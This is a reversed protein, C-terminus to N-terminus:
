FRLHRWPDNLIGKGNIKELYIIKLIKKERGNIFKKDKLFAKVFIGASALGTLLQNLM